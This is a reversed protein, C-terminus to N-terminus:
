IVADQVDRQARIMDAERGRDPFAWKVADSSREDKKALLDTWFYNVANAVRSDYDDVPRARRTAISDELEDGECIREEDGDESSVTLIMTRSYASAVNCLNTARM